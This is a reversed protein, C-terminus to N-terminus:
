SSRKKAKSNTAQTTLPMGAGEWANLGGALPFVAAHGASRLKRAASAAHAGLADVLLLPKDPSKALEEQVQAWKAPPVNDSGMIHGRKFDAASRLDVIRTPKDNIMRVAAAPSLRPGSRSSLLWENVILAVILAVGVAVLVGQSALFEMLNM